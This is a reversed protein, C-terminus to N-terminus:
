TCVWSPVIAAMASRQGHIWRYRNDRQHPPGVHALGGQEVAQRARAVGQHGVNRAEGTVPVIARSREVALTDHQDVGAAELGHGGGAHGFLHGTLGTLGDDLGVHDDEHDIATLAQQGTVLLDGLLQATCGALHHQGDVLALADGARDGSGLEMRQPQTHGHGNGSGMTVAHVRQHLLTQFVPTGLTVAQQGLSGFGIGAQGILGFAGQILGSVLRLFVVLEALIPARCVPFPGCLSGLPGCALAIGLGVLALGDAHGHDTAGVAALGRQDVRQQALFAEDGEVLGAGRAVRDGDIEAIAVAVILEDVRGAKAAPALHVLGDLLERHCAM